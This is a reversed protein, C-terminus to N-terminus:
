CFCPPNGFSPPRFIRSIFLILRHGLKSSPTTLSTTPGPSSSSISRKALLPSAAGIFPCALRIQMKTSSRTKCIRSSRTSFGRTQLGALFKLGGELPGVFAHLLDNFLLATRIRKVADHGVMDVNRAFIFRGHFSHQAVLELISNHLILFFAQAGDIIQFVVM